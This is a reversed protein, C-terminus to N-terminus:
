EVKSMNLRMLYDETTRPFWYDPVWIYASTEYGDDVTSNYHWYKRQDLTTIRTDVYVFYTGPELLTATLNITYWGNVIAPVSQTIQTLVGTDTLKDHHHLPYYLGYEENSYNRIQITIDSSVPNSENTLYLDVAIIYRSENITFNQAFIFDSRSGDSGGDQIMIIESFSYNIDIIDPVDEETTDEGEEDAGIFEDVTNRVTDNFQYGLVTGLVIAALSFSFIVVYTSKSTSKKRSM